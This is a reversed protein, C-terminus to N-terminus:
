LGFKGETRDWKLLLSTRVLRGFVPCLLDRQQETAQQSCYLSKKETYIMATVNTGKRPLAFYISLAEEVVDPEEAYDDPLFDFGTIVPMTHESWDALGKPTDRLFYLEQSVDIGDFNQLSVAIVATGNAMRFLVVQVKQTGGGTGEDVVEIFGNPIDVTAEIAEETAPSVSVWKNGKKQIPYGPDYVGKLRQYYDLVTLKPDSPKEADEAAIMSIKDLSGSGPIVVPDVNNEATGSSQCSIAFFFLISLYLHHNKM